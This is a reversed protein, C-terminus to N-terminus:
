SNLEHLRKLSFPCQLHGPDVLVGTTVDPLLYPPTIRNPEIKWHKYRKSEEIQTKKQGM